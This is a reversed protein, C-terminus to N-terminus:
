SGLTVLGGEAELTMAKSITPTESSSGAQIRVTGGTAVAGVVLALSRFPQSATGHEPGEYAFDVYAPDLSEPDIVVGEATFSFPDDDPDNTDFGVPGSFTGAAAADLRVAFSGSAAPPISAPLGVTVSYGGPVALGSLLLDSAGDSYVTFTTELPNGTLVTGFAFSGGNPIVTAGQQVRIAAPEVLDLCGDSILDRYAEIESAADNWPLECHNGPNTAHVMIGTVHHDAGWSHGLEHLLLGARRCTVDSGSSFGWMGMFGLDCASGIWAAGSAGSVGLSRFLHVLDQTTSSSWEERIRNLLDVDSDAGLYPDEAETRRFHVQQIQHTIHFDPEFRSNAWNVLAEVHSQVAADSGLEAYLQSDTDCILDAACLGESACSGGRLGLAPAARRWLEDIEAGPGACGPLGESDLRCPYLLYRERDARAPSASAPSLWWTGRGPLQIMAELVRDFLVATVRSGPVEELTGRLTRVPGPDLQVLRGGADRATVRFEPARNSHPRLDLTLVQGGLVLPARLPEGPGSSITLHAVAGEELGSLVAESPSAEPGAMVTGVWGALLVGIVSVFPYLRPLKCM